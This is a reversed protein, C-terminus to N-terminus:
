KTGLNSNLVVLWVRRGAQSTLLFFAGLDKLNKVGGWEEWGGEKIVRQGHTGTQRYPPFFNKERRNKFCFFIFNKWIKASLCLICINM